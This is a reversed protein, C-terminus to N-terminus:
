LFKKELHDFLKELKPDRKPKVTHVLKGDPNYILGVGKNTVKVYWGPYHKDIIAQADKETCFLLSEVFKRDM